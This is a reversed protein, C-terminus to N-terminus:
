TAPMRELWERVGALVAERSAAYSTIAKSADDSRSVLRARFPQPHDAEFWVRIVLIAEGQVAGNNDAVESAM